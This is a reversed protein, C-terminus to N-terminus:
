FAPFSWELLLSFIPILSCVPSCRFIFSGFKYGISCVPHLVLLFRFTTGLTKEPVVLLCYHWQGVPLSHLLLKQHTLKPCPLLALLFTPKGILYCISPRFASQFIYLTSISIQLKELRSPWPTQLARLWALPLIQSPRMRSCINSGALRLIVWRCVLCFFWPEHEKGRHGSPWYVPPEWVHRLERGSFAWRPDTFGQNKFAFLGM